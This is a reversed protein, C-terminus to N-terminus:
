PKRGTSDQQSLFREGAKRDGIQFKGGGERLNGIGGQVAAVGHEDYRFAGERLFKHSGLAEFIQDFWSIFWFGGFLLFLERLQGEAEGSFYSIVTAALRLHFGM